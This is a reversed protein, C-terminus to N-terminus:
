IRYGRAGGTRACEFIFGTIDPRRKGLVGGVVGLAEVQGAVVEVAEMAGVQGAVVEVAKLALGLKM